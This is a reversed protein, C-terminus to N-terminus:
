LVEMKRFADRYYRHEWDRRGFGTGREGGLSAVRIRNRDLTGGFSMAYAPHVPLDHQHLYAFVDGGCWWGIPACTRESSTGWRRMRLKRVGSEEGRVGSV